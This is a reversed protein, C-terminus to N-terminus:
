PHFVQNPDLILEMLFAVYSGTGPVLHRIAFIFHGSRWLSLVHDGALIGMEAKHLRLQDRRERNWLLVRIIEIPVRSSLNGHITM